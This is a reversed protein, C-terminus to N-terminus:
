LSIDQYDDESEDTVDEVDEIDDELQADLPKKSETAGLTKDVQQSLPVVEVV